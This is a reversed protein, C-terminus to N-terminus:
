HGSNQTRMDMLIGAADFRYAATETELKIKGTFGNASSHVHTYMIATEGSANHAISNPSGLSAEVQDITSIGIRFQSAANADFSRGSEATACGVMGFVVLLLARKM